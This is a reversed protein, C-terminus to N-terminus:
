ILLKIKLAERGEIKMVCKSRGDARIADSSSHTIRIVTCVSVGSDRPRRSFEGGKQM